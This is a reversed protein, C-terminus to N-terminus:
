RARDRLPPPRRRVSAMASSRPSPETETKRVRWGAARLRGVGLDVPAVGLPQQFEQQPLLAAAADGDGAVRPM